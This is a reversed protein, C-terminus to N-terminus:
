ESMSYNNIFSAYHPCLDEWAALRVHRLSSRSACDSLLERPPADVSPVDPVDGAFVVAFGSCNANRRDLYRRVVLPIVLTNLHWDIHCHFFWPGPNDTFFRITVNNDGTNGISVVDRIVPSHRLYLGRALESLFLIFYGLSTGSILVRALDSSPRHARTTIGAAVSHTHTPPPPSALPRSTAIRDTNPGRPELPVTAFEYRAHFKLRSAASVRFCLSPFLSQIEIGPRPRALPFIYAVLVSRPLYRDLVFRYCPVYLTPIIRRYVAFAPEAVRPGSCPTACSARSTPHCTKLPVNAPM